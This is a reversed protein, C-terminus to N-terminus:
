LKNLWWVIIPLFNKISIVDDSYRLLLKIDKDNYLSGCWSLVLLIAHAGLSSESDAQADAWDSLRWQASLPYSLIRAKKMCVAFVRILSPLHGLQDSNESPACAMRNSKHHPPEFCGLVLFVSLTPTQHYNLCYEVTRLLFMVNHTTMLIALCSGVVYTKVSFFHRVIM